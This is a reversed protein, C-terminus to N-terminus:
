KMEVLEVNGDEREGLFYIGGDKEVFNSVQKYDEEADSYGDVFSEKDYTYYYGANRSWVLYLLEGAETLFADKLFEGRAVEEERVFDYVFYESTEEDFRVVYLDDDNAVIRTIRSGYERLIEEDNINLSWSKMDGYGVTFAISDAYFEMLRINVFDNVLAIEEDGIHVVYNLDGSEDNRSIYGMEDGEDFIIDEILSHSGYDEDNYRISWKREENKYSYALNEDNDFAINDVVMGEELAESGNLMLRGGDEGEAIYYIDGNELINVDYISVYSGTEITEGDKIMLLKESSGGATFEIAVTEDYGLHMESIDQLTVPYDARAFVFENESAEDTPVDTNEDVTGCATFFLVTAMLVAVKQLINKSM